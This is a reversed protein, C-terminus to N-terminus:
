PGGAVTRGYGSRFYGGFNVFNELVHEVRQTLFRDDSQQERTETDERFEEDLIVSIPAKDEQESPETQAAHAPPPPLAFLALFGAGGVDRVPFKATGMGVITSWM